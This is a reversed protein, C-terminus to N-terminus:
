HVMWAGVSRSKASRSILTALLLWALTGVFIWVMPKLEVVRGALFLVVARLSQTVFMLGTAYLAHVFVSSFQLRAGLLRMAYMLWVYILAHQGLLSTQQVDMVLGVLCALVLSIRSPQYVTWFMLVFGMWDLWVTERSTLFSLAWAAILTLWVIRGKVSGLWQEIRM